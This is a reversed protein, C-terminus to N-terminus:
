NKRSATFLLYYICSQALTLNSEIPCLSQKWMSNEITPNTASPKMLFEKATQHILYVKSDIVKVFLGCIDKVSTELSRLRYPQLDKLSKTHPQVGLAINIETLTLPRAAAVVIHLLKKAM